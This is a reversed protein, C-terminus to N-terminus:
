EKPNVINITIEYMKSKLGSTDEVFFSLNMEGEWDNENEWVQNNFTEYQIKDDNRLNFTWDTTKFNDNSMHLIARNIDPAFTKVILYYSKEKELINVETPEGAVESYSSQAYYIKGIEVSSLKPKGESNCSSLLGTLLVGALLSIIFYNKKM